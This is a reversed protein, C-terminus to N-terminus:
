IGVSALVPNPQFLSGPIEDLDGMHTSFVVQEM